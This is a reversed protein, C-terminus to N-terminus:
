PMRSTAGQNRGYEMRSDFGLEPPFEEYGGKVWPTCSPLVPRYSGRYSPVPFTLIEYIGAGMRVLTRGVGNILGYSYSGSNSFSPNLSDVVLLTESSGYVLNSVGRGLKRIPSHERMPPDQIDAVATPLSQVALTATLAFALNSFRPLRM